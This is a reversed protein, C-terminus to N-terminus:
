YIGLQSRLYSTTRIDNLRLHFGANGSIGNNLKDFLTDGRYISIWQARKIRSYISLSAVIWGFIRVYSLEAVLINSFLNEKNKTLHNVCSYSTLATRNAGCNPFNLYVDKIALRRRIQESKYIVYMTNLMVCITPYLIWCMIKNMQEFGSTDSSKNLRFFETSILSSVM